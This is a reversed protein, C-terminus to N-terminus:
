WAVPLAAPRASLQNVQWGLEAEPVALRLTPFRALVAALAEQLEVRALPAGICHYVGYGFAPHAGAGPRTVDVRDPDPFVAPDRNALWHLPFISEGARVSGGPLEVDTTPIRPLVAVTLPVVRLLEEVANPVLEPKDALLALQDPHRFLTLLAKTLQGATTEQGAGFLTRVTSLLETETLRDGGDYARVLATLLDDEPQRRRRELLDLLIANVTQTAAVLEEVPRPTTAVIAALWGHFPAREAAPIGLLECVVTGPLPDALMAVLDAPPGHEAVAEVLGAVVEAIHPRLQEVSRYTFAKSILRRLRTHEPPDMNFITTPGQSAPLITPSGVVSAAARSMRSDSLVTRVDDYRIALRVEHGSALRVRPVPGADRLGAWEPSIEASRPTDFPFLPLESMPAGKETGCEDM